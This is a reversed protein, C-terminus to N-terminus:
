RRGAHLAGAQQTILSEAHGPTEQPQVFPVQQQCVTGAAPLAGGFM